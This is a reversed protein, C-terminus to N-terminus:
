KALMLNSVWDTHRKEETIVGMKELNTLEQRLDERLTVAVRRPHQVVPKVNEDIDFHVHGELKGLGSFVNAYQDM